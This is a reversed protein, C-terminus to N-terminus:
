SACVIRPPSAASAADNSAEVAHVYLHLAGAHDANREIVSELQQVVEATNGKPNGEADWYDWPQLNMLSEAHLTAADLDDPYQQVLEAM